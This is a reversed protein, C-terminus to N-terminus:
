PNPPKFPDLVRSVFEKFHSEVKWLEVISGKAVLAEKTMSVKSTGNTHVRHVAM